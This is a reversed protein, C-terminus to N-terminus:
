LLLEEFQGIAAAKISEMVQLGPTHAHANLAPLAATHTHAFCEHQPAARPILEYLSEKELHTLM